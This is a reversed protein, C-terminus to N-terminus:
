LNDSSCQWHKIREFDLNEKKRRRKQKEKKKPRERKTRRCSSLIRDKM